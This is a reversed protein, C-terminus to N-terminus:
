RRQRAEDERARRLMEQVPVDNPNIQAARELEAISQPFQGIRALAVGLSAHAEADGPNKSVAHRLLPLAEENRGKQSLLLGLGVEVGPRDPDASYVRQYEELAEDTHGTRALAKGYAALVDLDMPANRHAHAFLALGEETRGEGMLISALNALAGVSEPASGLAIRLHKEAEQLKGERMRAVAVAINAAPNAPSLTLVHGFLVEPSKWYRTQQFSATGLAVLLLALGAAIGVRGRYGLDPVCFALALFLGLHPLYTYRDAVSQVGVQVLGIVPILTLLFWAWGVLIQPRRRFLAAAAATLVAISAASAAILWTPTRGMLYLPSLKAPWFTLSLYHAYNLAVFGLRSSLPLQEFNSVAGGYTQALVTIIASAASLAFLPLKERILSRLPERRALPWVDILLLALPLTVAMPKALLALLAFVAVLNGSGGRRVRRVHAWCACVFFFACLLDKREAAWAVSEVRLPHVAFLAAVAASRARDSTAEDLWLFVVAAVAAHWLLSVLHHGWARPGFIQWDLMHSLWTLPHWNAVEFTTFAWKLGRFSLGQQVVRNGTLYWGDDYEVFGNALTPGFALFVLAALSLAIATRGPM